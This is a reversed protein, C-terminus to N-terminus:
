FLFVMTIFSRDNEKFYGFEGQSDGGFLDLGFIFKLNRNAKVTIRPRVLYDFKLLNAAFFIEPELKDNFFSTQAWFSLAMKYHPEDIADEYNFIVTQMIQFNTDLKNGFTYDLGILCEMSNKKTVGDLDHLNSLSYFKGHNYIFEGKLILDEIASSFTVGWLDMKEYTPSIVFLIEDPLSVIKRYNVPFRDVGRFYFVSMDIQEFLRSWRVGFESSNLSSDPEEVSKVLWQDCEGRLIRGSFDFESGAVGYENFDPVPIFVFEFTNSNHFCELDLAWIPIRIDALDPLIYERLDKPNIIDAFFVGVAQGWVIQQKGLRLDFSASGFDIYIEKLELDKEQDDEVDDGYNDSLDYLPDYFLEGKIRAALDSSFIKVAEVQLRNKLKTFKHPSKLRYATEHRIQGSISLGREQFAEDLAGHDAPSFDPIDELTPVDFLASPVETEAYIV